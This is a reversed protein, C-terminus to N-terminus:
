VSFFPSTMKLFYEGMPSSLPKASCIHSDMYLVASKGAATHSRSPTIAAAPLPRPRGERDVAVYTITAETVLHRSTQESKEDPMFKKAWIELKVKLSTHGVHTCHGYCCVVDGVAVPKLFTIADVACTVVRGGAVERALIAGGIDMQAMIWGGFIDGAPNADGPMALTRTLLNGVPPHKRVAPSQPEAPTDTM